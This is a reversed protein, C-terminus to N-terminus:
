KPPVVYIFEEVSPIGNAVVELTSAGIETDKAVEFETSVIKDGTAVAMTSFNHTRAYFIHGTFDNTIRVLPYNTASQADDGFAAGQTFGNFQTGQLTYNDGPYVAVPFHTITPRWEPKYTGKTEYFWMGPTSVHLLMVSGTPTVLMRGGETNGSLGNPQPINLWRTGDFEFLTSSGTGYGPSTEVLVNGNPLISAPADDMDNGNPIDPGASWKSTKTDYIATHGAHHPCSNGGTAFVTGDPRLVQPGIDYTPPRNCQVDSDWLQVVTSGADRWIGTQLDLIESETGTGSSYAGVYTDVTLVEGNPLLTWGEEDNSDNKGTGPYVTWTLNKEDLMAYQTTDIDALVFIGKDTVVSSADGIQTWGPPSKVETWTNEVPDYIAGKHTSDDVGENYEGGEVIVKGDPLVASAFYLPAYDYNTPFSQLQKWHGLHYTGLNNPILEWWHSTGAEQVMINGGTLQLAIGAPFGQYPPPVDTWKQATAIGSGSLLILVLLAPKHIRGFSATQM